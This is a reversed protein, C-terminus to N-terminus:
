SVRAYVEDLMTRLTTHEIAELRATGISELFVYDVSDGRTKKDKVLLDWFQETRLQQIVPLGFGQLLEAARLIDEESLGCYQSSIHMAGVMGISVADGHALGQRREIAHGITHGFNLLKRQGYEMSDEKIIDIKIRSAGSICMALTELERQMLSSQYRELLTIYSEDWILGHKVMEAFGQQYNEQELTLCYRPDIFIHTPMKFAGVMNKLSGHNVGTKGGIAADVMSLVTTPVYICDIGRKYIAAVFGTVDSVAGGGFAILVDSRDLGIALLEGLVRDIEAMNKAADAQPIVVQRYGSLEASYLQALHDDTVVVARRDGIVSPLDALGYGEMIRSAGFDLELLYQGLM